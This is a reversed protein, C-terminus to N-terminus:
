SSPELQAFLAALINPPAPESAGFAGFDPGLGWTGQSLKAGGGCPTEINPSTRRPSISMRRQSGGGSSKGTRPAAPKAATFTFLSSGDIPPITKSRHKALLSGDDSTSSMRSACTPPALANLFSGSESTTSLLSSRRNTARRGNTSDFFNVTTKAGTSSSSSTSMNTTSPADDEFFDLPRQVGTADIRARRDAKPLGPTAAATTGSGMTFADFRLVLSDCRPGLSPPMAVPSESSEEGGSDECDTDDCDDVQGRAEVTTQSSTSEMGESRQRCMRASQTLCDTRRKRPIGGCFSNKNTVDQLLTPPDRRRPCAAGTPPAVNTGRPRLRGEWM